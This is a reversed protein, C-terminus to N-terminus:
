CKYRLRHNTLRTLRPRLKRKIFAYINNQQANKASKKNGKQHTRDHIYDHKNSQPQYVYACYQSKQSYFYFSYLIKVAPTAKLLSM